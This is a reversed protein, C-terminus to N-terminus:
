ISKEKQFGYFVEIIMRQWETLIFPKGFWRASTLVCNQEIFDCVAKGRKVDNWGSPTPVTPTSNILYEFYKYPTYIKYKSPM